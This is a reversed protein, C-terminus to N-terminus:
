WRWCNRMLRSSEAMVRRFIITIYSGSILDLLHCADEPFAEAEDDAMIQQFSFLPEPEFPSGLYQELRNAADYQQLRDM